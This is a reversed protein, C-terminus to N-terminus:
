NNVEIHGIIGLAKECYVATLEIECIHKRTVSIIARYLLDLKQGGTACHLLKSILLKLPSPDAIMCVEATKNQQNKHLLPLM